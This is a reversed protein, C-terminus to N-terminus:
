GSLDEREAVEKVLGAFDEDGAEAKERFAAMNREIWAGDGGAPPLAFGAEWGAVISGLVFISRLEDEPYRPKVIEAWAEAIASCVADFDASSRDGGPRV